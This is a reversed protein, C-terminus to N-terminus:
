GFDLTLDEVSQAVWTDRFTSPTDDKVRKEPREACVHKSGPEVLVSNGEGPDRRGLWALRHEM